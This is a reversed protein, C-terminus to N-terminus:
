ILAKICGIDIAHSQPQLFQLIFVFLGPFGSSFVWCTQIVNISDQVILAKKVDWFNDPYLENAPMM